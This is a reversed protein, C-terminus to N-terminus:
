RGARYKRLQILVEDKKRRSVEVLMGNELMLGRINGHEFSKVYQLSIIPSKHARVFGSDQLCLIDEYERLVRSTHYTKGKAYIYTYNGDGKLLIIDQPRIYDLRTKHNIELIGDRPPLPRSEDQPSALLQRITTKLEDIIVPKLLYDFAHFRIAQIAYQDYSTVFVTKFKPNTFKLLLDFGNGDPMEIDLFVLDPNTMRIVEYGEEVNAAVGVVKVEPCHTHLLSALVERGRYEDDIIVCRM